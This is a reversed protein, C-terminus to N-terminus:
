KYGLHVFGRRPYKIIETFGAQRAMTVLADQRWSPCAVDFARGAMHLSRPSGGVKANHSRCRYASTISLRGVRAELAKLAELAGPDVRAVGCGCRCRFRDLDM